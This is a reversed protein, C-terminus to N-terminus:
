HFLSAILSLLFLIVAILVLIKEAPMITQSWNLSKLLLRYPFFSAAPNNREGILSERFMEVSSPREDPHLSMAWLIARQTRMSLSHNLEGPPTLSSPDLFRKLAEM